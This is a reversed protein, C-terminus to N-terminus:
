EFHGASIGGEKLLGKGYHLVILGLIVTDCANM